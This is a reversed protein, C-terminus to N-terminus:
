PGGQLVAGLPLRDVRLALWDVQVMLRSSDAVGLMFSTFRPVEYLWSAPLYLMEGPKLDVLVCSVHKMQPCKAFLEDVNDTDDAPLSINYSNAQWYEIMMVEEKDTDAEAAPPVTAEDSLRSQKAAPETPTDPESDDDHISIVDSGNDDEDYDSYFRCLMMMMMLMMTTPELRPRARLTFVRPM